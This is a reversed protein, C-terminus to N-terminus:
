QSGLSDYANVQTQGSVKDPGHIHLHTSGLRIGDFGTEQKLLCAIFYCLLSYFDVHLLHAVGEEGNM